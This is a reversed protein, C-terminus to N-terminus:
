RRRLQALAPRVKGGHRAYWCPRRSPRRSRRRQHHPMHYAKAKQARLSSPPHTPPPPPPPSAQNLPAESQSVSVLRPGHLGRPQAPSVICTFLGSFSLTTGACMGGCSTKTTQQATTLTPRQRRAWPVLRRLLAATNLNNTKLPVPSRRGCGAPGAQQRARREADRPRRLGCWHDHFIQPQHMM